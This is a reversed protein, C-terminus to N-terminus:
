RARRMPTVSACSPRTHQEEALRLYASTLVQACRKPSSKALIEDASRILPPGHPWAAIIDQMKSALESESGSRFLVGRRGYDLLEGALGGESAILIKGAAAACVIVPAFLDDPYPVIAIDVARLFDNLNRTATWEVDISPWRDAISRYQDSLVIRYRSGVGTASAASLLFQAAAPADDLSFFGFRPASSHDMTAISAKAGHAVPLGAVVSFRAGRFFGSNRHYALDCRNSGILASVHRSRHRGSLGAFSNLSPTVRASAESLTGGRIPPGGSSVFHAIAYPLKGLTAWVASLRSAYGFTQIVDPAFDRLTTHLGLYAAPASAPQQRQGYRTETSDPRNHRQESAAAVPRDRVDPKILLVKAGIEAFAALFSDSFFGALRPDSEGGAPCLFAVKM